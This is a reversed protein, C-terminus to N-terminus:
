NRNDDETDEDINWSEIFCDNYGGGDINSHIVIDCDSFFSDSVIHSREPHIRIIDPLNM